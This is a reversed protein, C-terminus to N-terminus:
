AGGSIPNLHHNDGRLAAEVEPTLRLGRLIKVKSKDTDQLVGPRKAAQSQFTKKAIPHQIREEYCWWLFGTYAHKVTTTESRDLVTCTNFFEGLVDSAEKFSQTEAQMTETDGLGNKAWDVAGAICWALVGEAENLLTPKLSQDAAVAAASEPRKSGACVPM